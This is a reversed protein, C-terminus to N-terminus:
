HRRRCAPGAACATRAAGPRRDALASTRIESAACAGHLGPRVSDDSLSLGRGAPSMAGHGAGEVKGGRGEVAQVGVLAVPHAAADVDLIEALARDDQRGALLRGMQEHQDLAMDLLPVAVLLLAAVAGVVAEVAARQHGTAGAAAEDGDLLHHGVPERLLRDRRQDGRVDGEARQQEGIQRVLQPRQGLAAALVLQLRQRHGADVLGEQARRM